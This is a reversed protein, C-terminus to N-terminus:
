GGAKFPPEMLFFIQNSSMSHTQVTDAITYSQAASGALLSLAMVNKVASDGM